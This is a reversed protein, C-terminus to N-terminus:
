GGRARRPTRRATSGLPHLGAQRVEEERAVTYGDGYPDDAGDTPRALMREAQERDDGRRAAPLAVFLDRLALTAEPRREGHVEGALAAEAQDLAQVPTPM